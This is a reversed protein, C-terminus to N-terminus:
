GIVPIRSRSSLTVTVENLQSDTLNEPHIESVTTVPYPRDYGGILYHQGNALSARYAYHERVDLSECTRFTLQTQWVNNGDEVKNIISLKAPVHIDIIDWDIDPLSVVNWSRTMGKLSSCQVRYVAIVNKLQVM